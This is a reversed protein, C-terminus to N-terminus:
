DRPSPSTYLLCNYYQGWKVKVKLKEIDSNVYFRIGMSSQLKFKAGVMEEIEDDEDDIYEEDMASMFDNNEYEVDPSVSIKRPYLMGTIYSSLPSEDLKEEEESPGMLDIRLADLLKDRVKSYSKDSM